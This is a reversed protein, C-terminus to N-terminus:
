LTHPLWFHGVPGFTCLGLENLKPGIQLPGILFAAAAHSPRKFVLDALLQLTHGTFSISPSLIDGLIENVTMDHYLQNPKFPLRLRRYISFCKASDLSIFFVLKSFRVLVRNVLIVTVPIWCERDGCSNSLGLM